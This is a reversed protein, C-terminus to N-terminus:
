CAPVFGAHKFITKKTVSGDPEIVEVSDRKSFAFVCEGLYSLENVLPRMLYPAGGLMFKLKLRFFESENVLGDEDILGEAEDKIPSNDSTVFEVVLAYIEDARSKIERCSPLENFTLLCKLKSKFEPTLDIVGSNQQDETASHQTLNIITSM